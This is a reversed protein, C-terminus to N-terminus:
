FLATDDALVDIVGQQKIAIFKVKPNVDRKCTYIWQSNVNILLSENPQGCYFVSLSCCAVFVILVSVQCVIRKVLM